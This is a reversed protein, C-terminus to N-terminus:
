KLKYDKETNKGNNKSYDSNEAMVVSMKIFEETVASQFITSM